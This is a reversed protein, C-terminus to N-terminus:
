PVPEVELAPSSLGEQSPSMGPFPEEPPTAEALAPMREQLLLETALVAPDSHFLKQISNDLLVNALALLSMGQHHVMFARIVEVRRPGRARRRFDIAEYFGYQALWGRSALHRLNELAASPDVMLSLVTAYPAVVLDDPLIRDLGCSPVGFARYQYNLAGDRLAHASESIGWPIRRERAYLRQIRVVSRLSEGLLTGAWTQMFLAPMLYEFMTGSWSILTRHGRYYTLKRGLHFWAERPAHGQAIAVFVATRAESALLDYSSDDLVGTEANWGIRLLNRRRDLLFAFDMLKVLAGAYEAEARLQGELEAWRSRAVDLSGRLQSLIRLTLEHIRGTTQDLGDIEKTIQDYLEGIESLKPVSRFCRMLSTLQPNRSAMRLEAEFPPGLWPALEGLSDLSDAVHGRLRNLWYRVDQAAAPARPDLRGAAWGVHDALDKALSDIETLVGEWFFLDDPVSEAQRKLAELLRVISSTRASSPISEQLRLVYDRLALLTKRAILPQQLVALCSQRAVILSAALNGSDVTSVFRPPLPDLTRTDYWNYFHGHDREMRELSSRMRSLRSTFHQHTLYGFEHAATFANLQLGLNTPSTRHAIAPPDEQINDPTLWNDEASEHDLFYRWTSLAVGRLFDTESADREPITAAANLWAVLGPACIWALVLSFALPQSGGRFSVLWFWSFAAFAVSAALYIDPLSWSRLVRVLARPHLLESASWAQTTAMEAQAMSEWELLNRQSIMRRYLTRVVADTMLFAQAPLVALLLLSELHARTFDSLRTWIWPRFFRWPPLRFLSIVIDAYIPFFLLLLAALNAYLSQEGLLLWASSLAAVFSLELLSRRLNDLIKWRSVLPLPNSAWQWAANPVRPLLWLAIQWDGRVWRHKRKSFAQYRSPYDDIMELDTVLGARVHEGEILDHSLLTNEPFRDRTAREFAAIDYIGKGTFTARGFLDQYLDSVATTYPDFGTQGSFVQAFRSKGASEMSIGIRPQLLAHGGVVIGSEDNFVPRNLPHAMTGILKWATDRPLQTDSDLTIAYRAGRLQGANGIMQSFTSPGGVLFRNFDDLKGRKRERGMWKGESPNWERDRHFLFFPEIGGSRYRKNLERVGKACCELLEADEADDSREAASGDGDPLDTLLGFFLNRDRNALFYIELNDILRQIGSRSLLLTPVVVLTRFEDPIGDRFDMRSQVRPALFYSVLLNITGIAAQSAPILLLALFWWPFPGFFRNVCALLGLTAASSGGLYFAAPWARVIDRMLVSVTRHGHTARRLDAIGDGLLYYGVHRQSERALEVTLAAVEQESCRSRRGFNEVARRYRDRTDFDMGAYAGAPDNRLIRDPVCLQEVMEPWLMEDLSRLAAICERVCQETEASELPGSSIGAALKRLLSIKVMPGIAWLEALTLVTARQWNEFFAILNDFSLDRISEATLQEAAQFIRPSGSPNESRPLRRYYGRPMAERIERVQTRLYSYNALLWEAAPSSARGARAGATVNECTRRLLGEFEPAVRLLSSQTPADVLM